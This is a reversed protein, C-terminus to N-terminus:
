DRCVNHFAVLIHFRLESIEVEPLAQYLLKYLETPATSYVARLLM